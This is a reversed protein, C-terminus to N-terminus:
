HLCPFPAPPSLPLPLSPPFFSPLLSPPPLLSSPSQRRQMATGGGKGKALDQGLGGGGRPEWGAKPHYTWDGRSGWGPKASARPM